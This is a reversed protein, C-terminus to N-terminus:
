HLGLIAALLLGVATRYSCVEREEPQVQAPNAVPEAPAPKVGRIASQIVQWLYKRTFFLTLLAYTIYASIMQEDGFPYQGM